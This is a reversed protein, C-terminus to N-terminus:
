YQTRVPSHETACARWWAKTESFFTRNHAPGILTECKRKSPKAENSKADCARLVQRQAISGVHMGAQQSSCAVCQRQAMFGPAHMNSTAVWEDM